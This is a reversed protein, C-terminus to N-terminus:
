TEGGHYGKQNTDSIYETQIEVVRKDQRLDKTTNVLGNLCIAPICRFRVRDSGELEKGIYRVMRNHITQPVSSVECQSLIYLFTKCNLFKLLTFIIFMSM